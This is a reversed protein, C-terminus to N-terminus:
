EGERLVNIGVMYKASIILKGVAEAESRGSEWVKHNDSLYAKWDDKTRKKTIIDM